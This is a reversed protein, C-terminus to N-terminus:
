PKSKPQASLEAIRSEISALNAEERALSAKHAEAEEGKLGAIIAKRASVQAEGCRKNELLSTLETSM